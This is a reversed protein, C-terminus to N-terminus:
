YFTYRYFKAESPQGNAYLVVIGELLGQANYYYNTITGGKSEKLTARGAADRQYTVHHYGTEKLLKGAPDYTSTSLPVRRGEASRAIKDLLPFFGYKTFLLRVAEPHQQLYQFVELEFDLEGSEVLKGEVVRDYYYDPERLGKPSYSLHDRRLITKDAATYSRTLEVTEYSSYKRRTEQYTTDNKLWTRTTTERVWKNTSTDWYFGGAPGKKDPVYRHQYRLMWTISDRNADGDKSFGDYHTSTELAGNKGYAHDVRKILEDPDASEIRELRGQKDFLQYSSLYRPDTLKGNHYHDSEIFVEKVGKRKYLRAIDEGYAHDLEQEQATTTFPFFFLIAAFRLQKLCSFNIYYM